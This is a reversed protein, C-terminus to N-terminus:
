ESLFIGFILIGFFDIAIDRGSYSTGRRAKTLTNYGRTCGAASLLEGHSSYRSVYLWRSKQCKLKQFNKSRTIVGRKGIADPTVLVAIPLKFSTKEKVCSM